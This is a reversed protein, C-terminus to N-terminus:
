NSSRFRNNNISDDKATRNIFHTLYKNIKQFPEEYINLRLPNKRGHFLNNRFRYIIILVCKNKDQKSPNEDKLTRKCFEEDSMSQDYPRINLKLNEFNSNFVDNSLYRKKFFLFIAELEEDAVKDYSLVSLQNLTNPTLRDRDTYYTHEFLNWLLSFHLIPKLKEEKLNPEGFYERLWEIVYNEQM